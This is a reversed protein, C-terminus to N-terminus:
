ELIKLIIQSVLKAIMNIKCINLVDLNSEEIPTPYSTTCNLLSFDTFLSKSFHYLKDIESLDCLGTSIITPIKLESIQYIFPFEVASISVLKVYDFKYKILLLADEFTYPTSILKLNNDKCSKYILPYWNEPLELKKLM